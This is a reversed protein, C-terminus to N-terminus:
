ASAKMRDFRQPSYPQMTAPLSGKLLLESVAAATVPTLLMGNRYHGTAIVLGDVASPGILPANDPTGPRLGATAEVFELETIGPMLEYANRLLEHVAGATVNTDFGQEEVTAGVITRGNVRSVIYVDLGRVNHESFPEKNTNQLHILQGKVPRVPPLAERPIGPVSGSWSGAAVVVVDTMLSTGDSTRVGHARGRHVLVEEVSQEEIQVDALRCAELLAATLARNDIQHDGDVRIGGRVVPSLGPELARCGARDLREVELGLSQQFSFLRALEENEDADRAVILTGCRRYGVTRGSAAELEAVFTPYSAAAELNLQLLEREGYHAETVPALLGAAAHSAGRGPAPDIVSVSLGGAAARWAIALGVAGGGVVIVDFHGESKTRLFIEKGAPM